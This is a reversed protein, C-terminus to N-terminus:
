WCWGRGPLSGTEQKFIFIVIADPRLGPRPFVEWLMGPSTEQLGPLCAATGPPWQEQQSTCSCLLEAPEPFPLARGPAPPHGWPCTPSGLPLHTLRPPPPHGQPLHTVECAPPHSWSLHTVGSAPPHSWLFTPSELLLHTVGPPPPHGWHITNAASSQWWVLQGLLVSPITDQQQWKYSSFFLDQFLALDHGAM